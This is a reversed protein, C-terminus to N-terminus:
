SAYKDKLLPVPPKGKAKDWELLVTGEDIEKKIYSFM